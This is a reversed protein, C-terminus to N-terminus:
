YREVRSRTDYVPNLSFNFFVGGEDLSSALEFRMLLDKRSYLELAGGYGVRLHDVNENAVADLGSYVRGTDVFLKAALWNSTAWLYSVQSVVAVRDRFRDYYYGRLLNTGGLRPLETFPVDERAGTVMEGVLRLELVRPRITLRVFRQLDFGLRYFGADEGRIGEQRAAYGLVLGGTGRMGPADWPDAQRRTDWAVELEDYLFTIGELGPIRNTMYAQDLPLYFSSDEDLDSFQKRVIAGTGTISLNDTVKYTLRPSGRTVKVRYRAPANADSTLPDIPMAPATVLDGNGYGFFHEEDRKEYRADISARLRGPIHKGTDIDLAAVQKYQGGTAARISIKEHGGFVDRFLGRMGVNLGFGTEFLATPFIAIKQDDSLFLSAIGAFVHYREHVYLTGRVPQAVLEIPIRPIWMLARGVRRGPGDGLDIPDTRGHEHGPLPAGAVDEAAVPTEEPAPKPEDPSPTDTTEKATTDPETSRPDVAVPDAAAPGAALVASALGALSILASRM